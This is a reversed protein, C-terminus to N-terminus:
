KTEKKGLAILRVIIPCLLLNVAFELIFNIGVFGTLMYKTTSEFGLGQAWGTITPMFFILCGLLFIGTNVIPCTVAAAATALYKNKKEFAKYM